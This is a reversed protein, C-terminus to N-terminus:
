LSEKSSISETVWSSLKDFFLDVGFPFFASCQLLHPHGGGKGAIHSSCEKLVSRADILKSLSPSFALVCHFPEKQGVVLAVVAREKESLLQDLLFRIDKKDFDPEHIVFFSLGSRVFSQARYRAVREMLREKLIGDLSKKMDSFRVFFRDLSPCVDAPPCQLRTSCLQIQQKQERFLSLFASGAVAEIRRIGSAVGSESVVAFLGIDSTHSVHIGGCLERSCGISLVRVTKEYKESFLAVAGSRIAEDYSLFSVHTPTSKLIEQNVFFSINEIEEASLPSPHSFDFRTRFPDVHSGKQQVHPGLVSRLAAHLLHTASHHRSIQLRREQDVKGIVSDGRHLQGSVLVGRHVITDHSIKQTDNVQFITKEDCSCWQGTDGVQGGSEPYFPTQNVILFADQHPLLRDVTDGDDDLLALVSGEKETHTYGCFVSSPWAKNISLTSVPDFRSHARANARQEAMRQEFGEHDVSVGESRCIDETLDLPFGYTDYLKFAMSGSLCVPKEHLAEKLLLMGHDITQFFREEEKKLVSVLHEEKGNLEPYATAMSSVFFPVFQFFFPERKGLQYGHRIARRIIRRLVYNRGENGPFVGDSILFSVSRIHDALVRLSQHRPPVDPFSTKCIFSILNKFSEIEYNSDVGQLVSAIRELGMGTDVCPRPLPELNEESHRNFEMFVINWIEMFRDGEAEATGPPGGLFSSGRDYFIETCPGCPGTTAMQWFNDSSFRTGPFDGIRIVRSEPLGIKKIWIQHALDDSHYTTVWIRHPDLHLHQTLFVWAYDIAEEKFYRGFSFNGLMEFFTHHRSTYGVNELDNHKGGARLCRQVSTAADYPPIRKGTFFDKFPVMGANTFLLTPDHEPVFSSSPVVTHQNERFFDIFSSRVLSSNM